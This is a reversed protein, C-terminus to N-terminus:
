KKARWKEMVRKRTGVIPLALYVRDWAEHSVEISIKNTFTLQYGAVSKLHSMNIIYSRGIRVFMSKILLEEVEGMPQSLTYRRDLTQIECYNRNACLFMIDNQKVVSYVGREEPVLLM